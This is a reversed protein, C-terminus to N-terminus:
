RSYPKTQPRPSHPPLLFLPTNPRPGGYIKPPVCIQWPSLSLLYLKSASCPRSPFPPPLNTSFSPIHIPRLEPCPNSM